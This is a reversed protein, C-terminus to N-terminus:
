LLLLFINKSRQFWNYRKQFQIDLLFDFDKKIIKRITPDFNRWKEINNLTFNLYNSKTLKKTIKIPIYEYIVGLVDEPLLEMHYILRYM